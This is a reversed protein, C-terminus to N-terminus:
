PRGAKRWAEVARRICVRSVDASVWGGEPWFYPSEEYHWGNFLDDTGERAVHFQWGEGRSRYYCARGDITGDGQVPCAGGFDIELGDECCISGKTEAYPATKIHRAGALYRQSNYWADGLWRKIRNNSHQLMHRRLYLWIRLRHRISPKM